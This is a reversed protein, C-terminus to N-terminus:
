ETLHDVHNIWVQGDVKNYLWGDSETVDDALPPNNTIEAVTNSGTLPNIPLSGVYPGFELPGEARNTTGAANTKTLLEALDDGPVAGNHEQQYLDIQSRLCYLNFQARSEISQGQTEAFHPLVTATLVVIIIAVILVEILTFGATHNHKAM